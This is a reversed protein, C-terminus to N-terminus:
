GSGNIIRLLGNQQDLSIITHIQCETPREAIAANHEAHVVMREVISAQLLIRMDTLFLCVQIIFLVIPNSASYVTPNGGELIGGQPAARHTSTASASSSAATVATAISSTLTAM